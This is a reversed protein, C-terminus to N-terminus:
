HRGLPAAYYLPYALITSERMRPRGAWGHGYTRAWAQRSPPVSASRDQPGTDRSRSLGVLVSPQLALQPLGGSVLSYAVIM